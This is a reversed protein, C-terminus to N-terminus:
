NIVKKTVVVNTASAIKVILVQQTTGAYMKVQSANINNKSALLRGRIDYIKVSSMQVTGTNVVVEQNQKYVLVSNQNFQPDSTSLPNEYVVEFRDTFMGSESGFTYPGTKLNHISNTLKDKIFVDQDAFLGDFQEISISYEDATAIKYQLPVIDTPTFEPRGQIAYAVGEISSCIYEQSNINFGDIGKDVRLTYDSSYGVLMQSYFGNTRTLNLKYLSPNSTTKNSTRFFQNSNNVGRRMANTFVLNAAATAQVFFGQGANIVWTNSANNSTNFYNSTNTTGGGPASNATYGLKTLTAYSPQTYDNRKRWFYLVGTINSLNEDIFNHLNIQSPYPNGTANFGYGTTPTGGISMPFTITGSNPKGTFVGNYIAPTTSSYDKPVRILYGKAATFNNSGSTIPSYQNTPTDYVYFRNGLTRPSFAYLNQNEVPSSWLTYDLLYLSSSNRKVQISGTNPNTTGISQILNSDNELTFSSGNAVTLAGSLIVNFPSPITVIASNNVTLTCANIDATAVYNATIIATSTSIPASPVWSGNYTSTGGINVTPTGSNGSGACSGGITVSVISYTKPTSTAPAAFPNSSTYNTISFNSTGDFILLDYLLGSGTIAVSLSPSTGTCITPAAASLVAATSTVNTGTGIAFEGSFNNATALATQTLSIQATAPSIVISGPNTWTGAVGWALSSSDRRLIAHLNLNAGANTHGNRTFTIDPSNTATGVSSGVWHGNNVLTGASVCGASTPLGTGNSVTADVYRLAYSTIGPAASWVFTSPNYATASGIPFDFTGSAAIDRILTGTSSTVIYDTASAGTISGASGVTLTNAVIDLKGKYFTLAGTVTTASSLTVFDTSADKDMYLNIMSSPLGTGTTQATAGVFGYSATTPFTRTDTQINGTAGSADITAGYKLTAGAALTFSSTGADSITYGSAVQFCTPSNVVMAGRLGFGAGAVVNAFGAGVTAATSNLEVNNYTVTGRLSHSDGAGTGYLEVTGGTLTYTGSLEPLTNNLSSLRFRSTGTM